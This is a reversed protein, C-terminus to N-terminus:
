LNILPFIIELLKKFKFCRVIDIMNKIIPYIKLLFYSSLNFSQRDIKM